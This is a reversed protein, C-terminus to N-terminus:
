DCSFSRLKCLSMYNKAQSLASVRILKSHNFKRKIVDLGEVGAALGIDEWKGSCTKLAKVVFRM